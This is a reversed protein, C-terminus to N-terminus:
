NMWMMEEKGNILRRVGHFLKIFKYFFVTPLTWVTKRFRLKEKSLTFRKNHYLVKYESITLIKTCEYYFM